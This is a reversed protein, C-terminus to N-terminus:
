EVGFRVRPRYAAKERVDPLDMGLVPTFWKLAVSAVDVKAPAGLAKTLIERAEAEMSRGSATARKKLRAKVRPDLRRILLSAGDTM